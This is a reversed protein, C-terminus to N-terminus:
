IVLYSSEIIHYLTTMGVPNKIFHIKVSPKFGPTSTSRIYVLIENNSLRTYVATTMYNDIM